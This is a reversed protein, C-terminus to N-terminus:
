IVVDIDALGTTVMGIFFSDLAAPTKFGSLDPMPFSWWQVQGGM